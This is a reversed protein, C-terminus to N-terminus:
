TFNRVEEPIPAFEDDSEEDEEMEESEDELPNIVDMIALLAKQTMHPCLLATVSNVVQRLVHRNQSLLSLM